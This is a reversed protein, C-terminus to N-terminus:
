EKNGFAKKYAIEGAQETTVEKDTVTSEPVGARETIAKEDEEAKKKEAATKEDAATKSQLVFQKYCEEASWKPNAKAVEFIAKENEAFSPKGDGGNHKLTTLAVDFQAAIMGITQKNSDISSKIDKVAAELDGKHKTGIFDVIERNSARDLDLDGSGAGTAPKSKGEKFSLYDEGLLEKDADDLRQELDTKADGLTKNAEKSAGLEQLADALQQQVEGAAGKDEGGNVNDGEAM